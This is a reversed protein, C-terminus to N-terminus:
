IKTRRLQKIQPVCSHRRHDVCDADPADISMPATMRRRSLERFRQVLADLGSDPLPKRVTTAGRPVSNAGCKLLPM